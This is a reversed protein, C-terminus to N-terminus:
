KPRGETDLECKDSCSDCHGGCGMRLRLLGALVFLVAMTVIAILLDGIM